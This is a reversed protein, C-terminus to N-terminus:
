DEQSINTSDFALQQDPARWQAGHREKIRKDGVEQIAEM